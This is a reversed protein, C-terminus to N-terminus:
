INYHTIAGYRLLLALTTELNFPFATSVANAFVAGCHLNEIFEAAGHEIRVVVVDLNQRILLVAEAVDPRISVLVKEPSMEQHAAWLSVVAYRSRVVNISPHLTFRVQSLTTENSLLKSLESITLSEEEAAHYTQVYSVELRALDGLYPLASAPAFDCVYSPFLDGYLTLVPSRPPHARVFQGAMARFFKVGVLAQTVPFTDALADILSVIVNNRYVAFRQFPDSGNWTTLGSPCVSAEQMLSEAFEDHTSM